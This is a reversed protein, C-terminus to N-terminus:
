IACQGITRHRERDGVRGHCNNNALTPSFAVRQARHLTGAIPYCRLMTHQPLNPLSRYVLSALHHQEAASREDKLVSLHRILITTHEGPPDQSRAVSLGAVNNEDSAARLCQAEPRDDVARPDQSADARRGRSLFPFLTTPLARALQKRSTPVCGRCNM